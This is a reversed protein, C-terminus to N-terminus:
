GNEIPSQADIRSFGAVAAPLDAIRFREDGLGLNAKNQGIGPREKTNEIVQHSQKQQFGNPIRFKSDSIAVQDQAFGARITRSYLAMRLGEM